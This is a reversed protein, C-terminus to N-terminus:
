KAQDHDGPRGLEQDDKQQKRWKARRNKFWVEVREEKLEVRLALEERLLVDPYHTKRFASELHELQDETFITRHRRKRKQGNNLTLSSFSLLSSSSGATASVKARQSHGFHGMSPFMDGSMLSSSLLPFTSLSSLSYLMPNAFNLMSSTTPRYTPESDVSYSRHFNLPSSCRSEAMNHSLSSHSKKTLPQELIDRVSFGISSKRAVKPSSESTDM